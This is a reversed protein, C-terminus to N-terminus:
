SNAGYACCLLGVLIIGYLVRRIIGKSYILSIILLPTVISTFVGVYNPNYLTAYVHGKNFRFTLPNKSILSNGLGTQFFDHGVFQTFGIVTVIGIMGILIKILIRVQNQTKIFIGCYIIILGYGLLVWVSEYQEAMGQLSIIKYRTALTSLITLLMYISLPIIYMLNQQLYNKWQSRFLM